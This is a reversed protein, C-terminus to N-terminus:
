EGRKEVIDMKNNINILYFVGKSDYGLDEEYIWSANIVYADYKKNKYTYNEKVLYDISVESVKPLDQQRDGYTNTLVHNYMTDGAHMKFNDIMDSPIFEVGGIDTSSIKTDLTYFDTIFLKVISKAYEEENIKEENLIDKLENFYKKYLESDLDDLTYGYIDLTDLKNKVIVEKDDDLVFDCLFKVGIILLIIVILSIMIFYFLRNKNLVKRM